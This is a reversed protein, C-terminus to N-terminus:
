IQLDEDREDGLIAQEDNSSISIVTIRMYESRESYVLM